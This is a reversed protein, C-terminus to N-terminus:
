QKGDQKLCNDILSELSDIGLAYSVQKGKADFSWRRKAPWGNKGTGLDLHFFPNYSHPYIGLGVRDAFGRSELDKTLSDLDSEYILLKECRSLGVYRHLRFDLANGGHHWSREPRWDSHHVYEKDVVGSAAIHGCLYAYLAPNVKDHRTFERHDLCASFSAPNTKTWPVTHGEAQSCCMTIIFCTLALVGLLCLIEGIKETLREKM